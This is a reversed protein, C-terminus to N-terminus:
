YNSLCIGAGMRQKIGPEGRYSCFVKPNCCTCYHSIEINKVGAELLQRKNIEKLDIYYKEGKKEAYEDIWEWQKQFDEYVEFGTEFCCKSIGPSIFAMLDEQKSGYEKEMINVANVAIGRVTGRWGAHVLGIAKNKKDYFFVALCDAHVTTLLVGPNNTVVGDTQLIRIPESNDASAKIVEVHSKHVQEPWVLRCKELNLEELVEKNYYPSETSAGEKTSFFATVGEEQTFVPLYLRNM